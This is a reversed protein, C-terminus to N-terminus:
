GLPPASRERPKGINYPPLTVVLRAAGDPIQALLEM